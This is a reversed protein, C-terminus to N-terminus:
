EHVCVCSDLNQQNMVPCDCRHAYSVPNLCARIRAANATELLSPFYNVTNICPARGSISVLLESQALQLFCWNIYFAPQHTSIQGILLFTNSLFGNFGAKSFPKTIVSFTYSIGTFTIHHYLSFAGREKRQQCVCNM